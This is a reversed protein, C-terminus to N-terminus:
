QTIEFNRGKEFAINLYIEMNRKFTKVFEEVQEHELKQQRNLSDMYMNVVINCDNQEMKLTSEIKM